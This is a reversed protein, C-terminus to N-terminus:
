THGSDNVAATALAVHVSVTTRPPTVTAVRVPLRPPTTSPLRAHLAEVGPTCIKSRQGRM